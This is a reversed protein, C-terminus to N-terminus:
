YECALSEEPRNSRIDATLTIVDGGKAAKVAEALEDATSVSQAMAAGCLLAMGLVLALFACKRFYRGKM